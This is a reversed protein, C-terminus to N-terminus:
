KGILIFPAWYYPNSYQGQAIMNLKAQRLALSYNNSSSTQQLLQTYFDVMLLSTSKDSVSWLSVILNSAGAYLLARTLGIIGEGKQIKGLGTQCASLTVLDAKLKLNYIEGSYLNGDEKKTSDPTLYIESLEPKQEDVIGHTAFHLYKYNNLADSKIVSEHVASGTYSKVPIGKSSFLTSITAVEDKTSPLPSLGKGKFGKFDIPACLFIANNPQAIKTAAQEYLNASYSYAVACKKILFPYTTYNEKKTDVRSSLFSEFPVTGLKGDPIVVLKHISSHLSFPLLQKYLQYAIMAFDEKAEFRIANRYGVLLKNLQDNEAVDYVHFKKASVYFVYVRKNEDAIFYSVLATEKDLVKQLSAISTTKVNYKLDYYEPFQKEMQLIFNEYERNLAFLQDRFYQEKGADEKAALKQEYFSITAKISKEKELLSDPINAFHKAEADSIAELLVATKSKEAFYFAKENYFQKNASGDRLTICVRIANEYVEAALKGLAIKDNKNTQVKRIKEILTDCSYFTNVALRLEAPKLTKTTYLIELTRAKMLLSHLLINANYYNKIPPNQKYNTENFDPVNACVAKQYNELATTYKNEVLYLNGIQNYTGAIEPHKEGYNERYIELAKEQLELAKEPEGRDAYVEAVNSYVFATNPHRSKHMAEWVNLVKQFNALAENYKKQKRQIVAINNYAIAVNPHEQGYAKEYIQLSKTYYEQAKEPNESAYILGLNNYAAAVEPHDEGYLELRLSLSKQLHELALENNGANWYALGLNNYCSALAPIDQMKQSSFITIAKKFNDIAEDNRGKNLHVYGLENFLIAESETGALKKETIILLDHNLLLSADEYKGQRALLAAIRARSTFYYKWLSYKKYVTGARTFGDIAETYSAAKFLSDAQRFVAGAQTTDKRLQAFGTFPLLLLLLFILFQPPTKKM